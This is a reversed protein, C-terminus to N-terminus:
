MGAREVKEAKKWFEENVDPCFEVLSKKLRAIKARLVADDKAREKVHGANVILHAYLEAKDEEVGTTGYHTLFGPHKTTFATTSKDKQANKGGSGYKFGVPNLAAWADDKYVFGDDRYDVLHFFEHHIVAALYRPRNMPSVDLYLVDSEWDPIANRRQGAFSLEACLVVKKLKSKAILSTPYLSFERVFLPVYKELNRADARRGEIAGWSTRVPFGSALHVIGIHYTKVLRDLKAAFPPPLIKPAQALSIWLVFVTVVRRRSRVGPVNYRISGLM